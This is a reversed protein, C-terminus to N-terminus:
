RRFRSTKLIPRSKSSWVSSLIATDNVANETKDFKSSEIYKCYADLAEHLTRDDLLHQYKRANGTGELVDAKTQSLATLIQTEEEEIRGLLAQEDKKGVRYAAADAPLVTIEPYLRAVGEVYKVYTVPELGPHLKPLLFEEQGEGIATAIALSLKDWIPKEGCQAADLEQRRWIAGIRDLREKAQRKNKGLNLKAQTRGSPTRKYGINRRIFGDKDPRLETERM